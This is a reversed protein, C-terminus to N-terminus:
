LNVTSKRFRRSLRKERIILGYSAVIGLFVGLILSMLIWLSVPLSFEVILFDLAIVASNNISFILGICFAALVLVFVLLSSFRSM